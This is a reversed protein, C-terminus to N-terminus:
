DVTAIVEACLRARLVPSVRPVVVCSLAPRRDPLYHRCALDFPVFDDADRMYLVIRALASLPRGVEQVTAALREFIAFAQYTTAPRGTMRAVAAAYPRVEVPLGSLDEVLRGAGDLGVQGSVFILSGAMRAPSCHAGMGAARMSAPSIARHALGPSSRLAIAEIEVLTGKHGVERAEVVTLAPLACGLFREHVRHFTAYDKMDQLFITLSALDELGGGAVELVRRIKEYTFWTQAAIAGDRFDPHSRGVRLFRGEEPIDDYGQVVPSGPRTHDLAIQGALFVYPGALVAQSYHSGPPQVGPHRLVRRREPFRWTSPDIAIGDVWFWADGDFCSDGVGIGSAPAPEAPEYLQRIRELVPFFRKEKQYLHLQLVDGFDAERGGLLTEVRRYVAWAQAGPAGEIADVAAFGSSLASGEDPLDSWHSVLAGDDGLGLTGSIFYFGGAVVAPPYGPWAGALSAFLPKESAEGDPPFPGAGSRSM